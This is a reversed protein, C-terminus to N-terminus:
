HMMLAALYDDRELAEQDRKPMYKTSKMLSERKPCESGSKTSRKGDALGDFNWRVWSGLILPVHYKSAHFGYWEYRLEISIHEIRDTWWYVDIATHDEPM